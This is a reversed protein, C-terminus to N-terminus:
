VAAAHYSIGQMNVARQTFATMCGVYCQLESLAIGQSQVNNLDANEYDLAHMNLTYRSGAILQAVCMCSWYHWEASGVALHRQTEDTLLKLVPKRCLAAAVPLLAPVM